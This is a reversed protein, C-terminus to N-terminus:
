PFPLCCYRMRADSNVANPNVGPIILERPKVVFEVIPSGTVSLPYVILIPAVVEVVRLVVNLVAM